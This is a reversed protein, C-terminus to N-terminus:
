SMALSNSASMAAEGSCHCTNCGLQGESWWQGLGGLVVGFGVGGARTFGHTVSKEAELGTLARLVIPVGRVFLSEV